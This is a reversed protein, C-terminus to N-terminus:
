RKASVARPQVVAQDLNAKIGACEPVPKGAANMLFEVRPAEMRIAEITSQLDVVAPEMLACPSPISVAVRSAKIGQGASVELLRDVSDAKGAVTINGPCNYNSIAVGGIEQCLASVFGEDKGLIVAMGGEGDPVARQMAEARKGIIGLVDEELVVGSAVLAAWEGLSFGLVAQYPVGLSCFIRFAALECTLLCPQTNETRDLEEQTSNMVLTYIDRKLAASAKDFVERSLAYREFLERMM